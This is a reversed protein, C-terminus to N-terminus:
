RTSRFFEINRFHAESESGIIGYTGNKFYWTAGPLQDYHVTLALHNNVWVRGIHTTPDFSVDLHFWVGWLNAAVPTDVSNYLNGHNHTELYMAEGGANTKVQMICTGQTGPRIKVDAEWLHDGSTWNSEWRMETRPGTS